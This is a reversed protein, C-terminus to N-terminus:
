QQFKNQDYSSGYTESFTTTPKQSGRPNCKMPLKGTLLKLLISQKMIPPISPNNHVLIDFNSMFLPYESAEGDFTKLMQMIGYIEAGTATAGNGLSNFNGGTTPQYNIPSMIGNQGFIPRGTNSDFGTCTTAPAPQTSIRPNNTLGDIKDLIKVLVDQTTEREKRIDDRVQVVQSSISDYKKEVSDYQREIQQIRQLMEERFIDISNESKTESNSTSPSQTKIFQVSKRRDSDDNTAEDVAPSQTPNHQSGTEGRHQHSNKGDTTSRSEGAMNQESLIGRTSRQRNQLKNILDDLEKKLKAPGQMEYHKELLNRNAKFFEQDSSLQQHEGLFKDVENMMEDLSKIKEKIDDVHREAVIDIEEQGKCAVVASEVSTLLNKARNVKTTIKKKYNVVLQDAM